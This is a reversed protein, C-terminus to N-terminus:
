TDFVTDLGQDTCMPPASVRLGRHIGPVACVSCIHVQLIDIPAIFKAEKIAASPGPPQEMINRQQLLRRMVDQVSTSRM